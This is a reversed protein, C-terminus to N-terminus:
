TRAPPRGPGDSMRSGEGRDAAPGAVGAEPPRGEEAAGARLGLYALPPSGFTRRFMLTFAAPNEYGLDMAVTTVAAGAALRPLAHLLCAQRRWAMFSSGTERRFFRTFSRRSMGLAAAWDDITEHVAPREAFARCRAALGPDAPYQLSLPLEPLRGMEHGILAMLAGSRGGLDYEAPLELAEAILSRMLPSLGVVQCRTPTGPFAGPELYLSQMRVRGVARVWHVTEPPIWVGQQPPIVWVGAASALVVVGSASSILQARRHRHPAIRFGDPYERGLAVIPRPVDDMGDIPLGSRGPGAEQGGTAEEHGTQNRDGM